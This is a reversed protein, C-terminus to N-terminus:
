VGASSGHLYHSIDKVAKADGASLYEWRPEDSHDGDFYKRAFTLATDIDQKLDIADYAADFISIDRMELSEESAEVEFLHMKAKEEEDEEGWDEQFMKVSEVLGACFYNCKLRSVCQPYEKRRVYEFLGETAWKAYNAWYRLGSRNLVAFMYRGNLLMGLFCDRSQALAQIFPECLDTYDSHGPELRDGEKLTQSYHYVIM